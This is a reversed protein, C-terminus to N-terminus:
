IVFNSGVVDACSGGVINVEAGEVELVDINTKGAGLVFGVEALGIELGVIKQQSPATGTPMSM